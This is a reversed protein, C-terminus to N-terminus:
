KKKIAQWLKDKDDKYDEKRVYNLKVDIVTEKIEKIDQKIEQIIETNM